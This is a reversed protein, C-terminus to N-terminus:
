KKVEFANRAKLAGDLVDELWRQKAHEEKAFHLASELEHIKAGLRHRKRIDPWGGFQAKFWAKFASSPTISSPKM